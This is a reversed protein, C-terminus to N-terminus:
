GAWLIVQEALYRGRRFNFAQSYLMTTTTKFQAAALTFNIAVLSHYGPCLSTKAMFGAGLSTPCGPAATRCGGAPAGATWGNLALAAAFVPLAAPEYGLSPVRAKAWPPCATASGVM